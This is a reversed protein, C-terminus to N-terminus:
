PSCPTVDHPHHDPAIARGIIQPDSGFRRRWLADSLIVVPPRSDKGDTSVFDRGLEPGVGLTAFMNSSVFAAALREPEGIGSLDVFDPKYAAIQEFVNERDRWELFEELSASHVALNMFTYSVLVLRDTDRYPLSRLLVANVVSFIATNAGIGLALMLIAIITFGPTKRLMRAGFRLDHLLTDLQRGMRIDRVGEKVQDEGGLEILAARRAEAPDLGEEIKSDVLMELHARIEETLERDMRDKRFLNRWLSTLRRSLPM